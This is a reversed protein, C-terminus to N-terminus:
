PPPQNSFNEKQSFIPNDPPRTCPLFNVKMLFSSDKSPRRDRQTVNIHLYQSHNSPSSDHNMTKMVLNELWSVFLAIAEAKVRKPRVAM